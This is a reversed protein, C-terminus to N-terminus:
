QLCYFHNQHHQPRNQRHQPNIDERWFLSLGKKGKEKVYFTQVEIDTYFNKLILAFFLCGNILSTNILLTYWKM